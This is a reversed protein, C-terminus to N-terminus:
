RGADDRRKRKTSRIGDSGAREVLVTALQAVIRAATDPAVGRARFSKFTSLDLLARVSSLTAGKTRTGALAERVFAEVLDLLYQEWERMAPLQRERVDVEIYPGGREYFDFLERAVRGLREELGDADGIVEAASDPRPPRVRQMVLSGCAPLLEDLSPFHLYVTAVSVDAEEAIQKWSTGFVGHEAHLRATAEVIRRRTDEAAQARKTMDYSRPTM